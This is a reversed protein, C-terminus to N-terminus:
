KPRPFTRDHPLDEIKNETVKFRHKSFIISDPEPHTELWDHYEQEFHSSSVRHIVFFSILTDMSEEEASALVKLRQEEPMMQYAHWAEIMKDLFLNKAYQQEKTVDKEIQVVALQESTSEPTKLDDTKHSLKPTKLDPETMSALASKDLFTNSTSNTDELLHIFEHIGHAIHASAVVVEAVYLATVAGAALHGTAPTLGTSIAGIIITAVVSAFLINNISERQLTKQKRKLIHTAFVIMTHFDMDTLYTQNSKLFIIANAIMSQYARWQNTKFFKQLVVFQPEKELYALTEGFVAKLDVRSGTEKTERWLTQIRMDTLQILFDFLEDRHEILPELFFNPIPSSFWYPKNINQCFEIFDNLLEYKVYLYRYYHRYQREHENFWKENDHLHEFLGQLKKGLSLTLIANQKDSGGLIVLGVLANILERLDVEKGIHRRMYLTSIPAKHLESGVTNPIDLLQTQETIAYGLELLAPHLRDDGDSHYSWSFISRQNQNIADLLRKPTYTNQGLTFSALPEANAIARELQTALQSQHEEEQLMLLYDRVTYLVSKKIFRKPHSLIFPIFILIENRTMDACLPRLAEETLNEKDIFDAPNASIVEESVPPSFFTATSIIIPSREETQDNHAFM